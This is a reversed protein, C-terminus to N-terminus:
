YDRLLTKGSSKMELQTELLNELNENIVEQQSYASLVLFASNVFLVRNGEPDYVLAPEPILELLKQIATHTELKNIKNGFLAQIPRSIVERM